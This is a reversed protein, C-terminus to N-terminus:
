KKIPNDDKDLKGEHLRFVSGHPLTIWGEEDAKFQCERSFPDNEMLFMTLELMSAMSDERNRWFKDVRRFPFIVMRLGDKKEFELEIDWIEPVVVKIKTGPLNKELSKLLYWGFPILTTAMPEHGQPYTDNIKEELERLADFTYDVKPKFGFMGLMLPMGGVKDEIVDTFDHKEM